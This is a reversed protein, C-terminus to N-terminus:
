IKVKNINRPLRRDADYPDADIQPAGFKKTNVESLDGSSDPANDFSAAEITTDIGHKPAIIPVSNKATIMSFNLRFNSSM